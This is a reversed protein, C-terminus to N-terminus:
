GLDITLESGAKSLVGTAAIGLDENTSNVDHAMTELMEEVRGGCGAVAAMRRADDACAYQETQRANKFRRASEMSEKAAMDVDAGSEKRDASAIAEQRRARRKELEKEREAKAKMQRKRALERRRAESMDEERGAFGQGIM